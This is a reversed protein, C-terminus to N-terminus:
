KEEKLMIIAAMAGRIGGTARHSWYIDSKEVTCEDSVTINKDEIGCELLSESVLGQLDVHFKGDGDDTIYKKAADGYSALMADPVDSHCEFASKSISPGIGALINEPRTGFVEQMKRVAAAPTKFVTGRWGAHAVGVAREVPDLLFVPVCDAHYTAIPLNPINTIIADFERKDPLYAEGAFTDDAVCVDAKHVQCFAVVRTYDFGLKDGLIRYNEVVAARDDGRGFGLNMTDLPSKSVGGLRTTFATLCLGTKDFSPVSLTLLGDKENFSFGHQLLNVKM